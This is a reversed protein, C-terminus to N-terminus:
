PDKLKASLKKLIVFSCEKNLSVIAFDELKNKNSIIDKLFKAYKPMKAIAEVFPINVHLKKFM